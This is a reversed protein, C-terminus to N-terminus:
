LSLLRQANFEEDEGGYGRPNCVVRCKGITYECAQHVHGHIWLDAQAVLADCASAYAPTAPHRAYCDPVSRRSPAHHTVVVTKGAFPKALERSLWKISHRHWRQAIDPTLPSSVGM